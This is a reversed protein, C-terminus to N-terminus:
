QSKEERKQIEKLALVSLKESKLLTNKDKEQVLKLAESMSGQALQSVLFALTDTATTRKKLIEGIHQCSLHSFQVVRCRSLITLLLSCPMHTILVIILQPPPEELIKLLSNATERTLKEAENIIWVKKRGEYLTYGSETRLSRIQEIKISQGDPNVIRLNPHNGHEMKHCSSCQGCGILNDEKCNLARAFSVAAMLKGVGSPGTFLYAGPLKKEKIDTKIRQLALNQGM